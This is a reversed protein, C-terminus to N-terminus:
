IECTNKLGDNLFVWKHIEDITGGRVHVMLSSSETEGDKVKTYYHVVFYWKGSFEVTKFSTSMYFDENVVFTLLYNLKQRKRIKVSNNYMM